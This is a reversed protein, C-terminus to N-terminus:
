PQTGDTVAPLSKLFVWIAKLEDDSMQGIRTWPMQSEDLYEGEPTVGQRLTTLFDDADWDSLNGGMTLNSGGGPSDNGSFDEGHCKSCNVALYAGYEPTIGPKSSVPYFQSRDPQSASFMGSNFLLYIRALFGLDSEPLPNDIPSYLRLFSIMANIDEDSLHGYMGAPQMLLSKGDPGVGKRIAQEWQRNTWEARGGTGSTLNPITLEGVFPGFNFVQGSYNGTHCEDCGLITVLHKGRRITEADLNLNLPDDRVPYRKEMRITSVIYIAAVGSFLAMLGALFALACGKNSQM